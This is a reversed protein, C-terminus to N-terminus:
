LNKFVLYSFLSMSFIFIKFSKDYIEFCENYDKNDLCSRYKKSYKSSIYFLYLSYILLFIYKNKKFINKLFQGLLNVLFVIQISAFIVAIANLIM